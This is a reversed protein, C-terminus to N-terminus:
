PEPYITYLLQGRRVRRGEEFHIGELFGDVRAQIAIDSLGYTQGVFDKMLPIDQQTVEVVQVQPPPLAGTSKEKCGTIPLTLLPVLSLVILNRKM